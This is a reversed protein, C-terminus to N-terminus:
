IKISNTSPELSFHIQLYLFSVTGWLNHFSIWAHLVDLVNYKWPKSHKLYLTIRLVTSVLSNRALIEM